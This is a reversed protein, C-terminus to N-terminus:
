KLVHGAIIVKYIAAPFRLFAYNFGGLFFQMNLIFLLVYSTTLQFFFFHRIRLFIILM